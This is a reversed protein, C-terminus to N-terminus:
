SEKNLILLTSGHFSRISSPLQKMLQPLPQSLRLSGCAEESFMIAEQHGFEADLVYEKEVPREHM